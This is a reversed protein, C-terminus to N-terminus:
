RDADLRGDEYGADYSTTANDAVRSGDFGAQYGLSYEVEDADKEESRVEEEQAMRFLQVQRSADYLLERLADADEDPIRITMSSGLRITVMGHSDAEVVVSLKGPYTSENSVGIAGVAKSEYGM